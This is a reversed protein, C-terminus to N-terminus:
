YLQVPDNKRTVPFQVQYKIKHSGIVISHSIDKAIQFSNFYNQKSFKKVAGSMRPPTYVLNPTVISFWSLFFLFNM